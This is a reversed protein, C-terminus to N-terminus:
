SVSQSVLKLKELVRRAVSEKAEVKNQCHDGITLGCDPLVVQYQYSYLESSKTHKYEPARLGKRKMEQKLEFQAGSGGASSTSRPTNCQERASIISRVKDYALIIASDKAIDRSGYYDSTTRESRGLFTFTVKCNYRVSGSSTDEVYDYRLKGDIMRELQVEKSEVPNPILPLLPTGPGSPAAAVIDSRGPSSATPVSSAAPLVPTSSSPLSLHADSSTESHIRSTCQMRVHLYATLFPM